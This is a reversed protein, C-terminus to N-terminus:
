GGVQKLGKIAQNNRARESEADRSREGEQDRARKIELDRARAITQLWMVCPLLLEGSPLTSSAVRTSM